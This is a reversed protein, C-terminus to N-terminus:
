SKTRSEALKQEKLEVENIEQRKRESITSKIKINWEDALISEIPPYLIHVESEQTFPQADHIDVDAITDEAPITIPIWDQPAVVGEVVVTVVDQDYEELCIPSTVALDLIQSTQTSIISSENINLIMTFLRSHQIEM